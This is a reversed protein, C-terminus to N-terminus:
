LTKQAAHTLLFVANLEEQALIVYPMDLNIVQDLSVVSDNFLDNANGLAYWDFHQTNGSVEAAVLVLIEGDDKKVLCVQM